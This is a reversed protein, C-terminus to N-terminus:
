LVGACLYPLFCFGFFSFYLFGNSCAWLLLFIRYLVIYLLIHLYFSQLYPNHFLAGGFSYVVCHYIQMYYINHHSLLDVRYIYVVAHFIYLSSGVVVRYIYLFSVVVRYIYLSSVVVRYIGLFFVAVAHYIDLSLRELTYFSPFLMAVLFTDLQFCDEYPYQYQYTNAYIYINM